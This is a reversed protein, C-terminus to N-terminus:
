DRDQQNHKCFVNKLNDNKEWKELVIKRISVFVKNRLNISIYDFYLTLDFM